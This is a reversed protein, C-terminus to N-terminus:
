FVRFFHDTFIDAPEIESRLGSINKTTPTTVQDNPPWKVPHKWKECPVVHKNIFIHRQKTIVSVINENFDYAWVVNM